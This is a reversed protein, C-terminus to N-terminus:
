KKLKQLSKRIFLNEGISFLTSTTWYLTLGSPMKYLIFCFMLPMFSMMKQQMKAQPDVSPTKPNLKMQVFSAATMILPLINLMNGMVPITFPLTILTDPMSLDNIWLVFPAQRMEFSLQLTRFLAFFIPMQLVMPLCGGLPNAGQQKFLEMQAKAMRQKDNKYKVKLQEIKPQLGQMKFMSIQSKRTLPFLMLKVLLTLFLISVGYNPILEYFGNLIKLLIKSISKFMGFGLLSELGHKELLQELKPGLFVMYNHKVENHSPIDVPKTQMNVMFDDTVAERASISQLGMRSSDTSYIWNNLVPKLIVAFYKNVSGTWSIGVSENREPLDKLGTKILKYNGNGNGRDIGVVTGMDIKDDGEYVIGSAATIQYECTLNQDSKNKLILEMNVHYEDPDISINKTIQLGNKLTTQFSAMNKTNEIVMFRRNVLSIDEIGDKDPFRIKTISLPLYDDTVPRILEMDRTKTHDKYNKLIVSKLAAGENTWTSIINENQLIIHDQLPIQADETQEIQSTEAAIEPQFDRSFGDEKGTAVGEPIDRGTERGIEEREVTEQKQPPPPSIKPLIIPFYVMLIIACLVLAIIGKKDM